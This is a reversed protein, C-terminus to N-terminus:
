ERGRRRRAREGLRGRLRQGLATAGATLFVLTYLVQLMVVIRASQGIPVIDGYGVTAMTIVTFYLADVRTTLGSFEGADRALSLYSVSFVLMALCSLMPISLAPLGRRSELVLQQVERLLLLGLVALVVGFLTWSLVPHNPGFTGLPVTFYLAFLVLPAAAWLVWSWRRRRPPSEM